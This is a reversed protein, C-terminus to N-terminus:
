KAEVHVDREILEASLRFLACVRKAEDRVIRNVVSMTNPLGREQRGVLRKFVRERVHAVVREIEEPTGSIM